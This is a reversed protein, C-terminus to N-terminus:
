PTRGYGGSGAGGDGSDRNPNWDARAENGNNISELLLAEIFEVDIDDETLDMNYDVLDGFSVYWEKKERDFHFGDKNVRADQGLGLQLVGRHIYNTGATRMVFLIIGFGVIRM